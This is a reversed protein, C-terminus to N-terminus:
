GPATGDVANARPVTFSVVTGAGVESEAWIRGGHAEVIGKAISLGLGSGRVPAGRSAHWFRGFIQPLQDAPIGSGTDRVSFQIDGERDRVEVVIRGGDPTFKLANGILNALVQVLREGDGMLRPPSDPSRVTLAVDKERAAHDFMNASRAAIIVPDRPRRELALKGADISAMDLLDAVLRQMWQAAEQITEGIRAVETGAIEQDTVLTAGCMAMVSLPNRLDHSVVGLVENRLRTARQAAHYLRANDVALAARRALEEADRVDQASYRRGPEDLALGLSGIARGHAILPVAIFSTPALAQLLGLHADGQAWERLTALTVEPIHDPRLTERARRTSHPLTWDIPADRLQRALERKAEDRHVVELRGLTDNEGLVDVIVFSALRPVVLRAISRLTQQYDLSSDLVVSADALFRAREEAEEARARAVEAMTRAREAHALLREREADAEVQSTIDRVVATFYRDGGADVKSIAAEAPFIEGNKRRGHITTREGMRRAAVPSTGFAAVHDRHRDRAREPILLDLPKGIIEDSSYGFIREAGTNFLVIRYEADVSIIADAALAVIGAFRAESSRLTEETVRRDTVDHAEVLLLRETAPLSALPKVSLDLVIQQDGRRVTVTERQATGAAAAAVTARVRETTSSDGRWPPLEWLRLGRVGDPPEGIFTAASGNLHLVVGDLTVVIGLESLEAFVHSFPAGASPDVPPGVVPVRASAHRLPPMETPKRM